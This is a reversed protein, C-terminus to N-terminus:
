YERGVRWMLRSCPNTPTHGLVINASGSCVSTGFDYTRASDNRSHTLYLQVVDETHQPSALFSTPLPTARQPFPSPTATGLSSYTDSHSSLSFRSLLPSSTPIDNVAPVVMRNDTCRPFNFPPSLPIWHLINNPCRNRRVAIARLFIIPPTQLSNHTGAATRRCPFSAGALNSSIILVGLGTEYCM